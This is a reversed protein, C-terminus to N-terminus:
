SPAGGSSGRQVSHEGCLEDDEGTPREDDLDERESEGEGEGEDADADEDADEDAGEDAFEDGFEDGFEERFEAELRAHEARRAEGRELLRQARHDLDQWLLYLTEQVRREDEARHFEEVSVPMFRVDSNGWLALLGFVVRGLSGWSAGESIWDLVGRAIVELVLGCFLGLFLARGLPRRTLLTAATALAILGTVGVDLLRWGVPEDLLYALGLWFTAWTSVAALLLALLGWFVREEKWWRLPEYELEVSDDAPPEVFPPPITEMGRM